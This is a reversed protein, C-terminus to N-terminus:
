TLSMIAFLFLVTWLNLLAPGLPLPHSHAVCPTCGKDQNSLLLWNSSTHLVSVFPVKELRNNSLLWTLPHEGLTAWERGRGRPGARSFREVIICATTYRSPPMPPCHGPAGSSFPGGLSLSVFFSLFFSFSFYLLLFSFLSRFKEFVRVPTGVRYIGMLRLLHCFIGFDFMPLWWVIKSIYSSCHLIQAWASKKKKLKCSM